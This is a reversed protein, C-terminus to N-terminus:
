AVVRPHTPGRQLRACHFVAALRDGVPDGQAADPVQRLMEVQHEPMAYATHDAQRGGAAKRFRRRRIRLLLLDDAAQHFALAPDGFPRLRM